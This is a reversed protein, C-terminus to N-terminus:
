IGRMENYARNSGNIFLLGLIHDCAFCGLRNPLHRDDLWRLDPPDRLAQRLRRYGGFDLHRHHSCRDDTVWGKQPGDRRDNRFVCDTPRCLDETRKRESEM